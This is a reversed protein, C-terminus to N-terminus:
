AKASFSMSLNWPIDGKSGTFPCFYTVAVLSVYVSANAFASILIASSSLLITAIVAAIFDPVPNFLNSFCKGSLVISTPIASCCATVKAAPSAIEPM